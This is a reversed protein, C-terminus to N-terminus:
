MTEPATIGFSRLLDAEGASSGGGLTSRFGLSCALGFIDVNRATM